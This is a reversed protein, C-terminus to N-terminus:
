FSHSSLLNKLRFLAFIKLEGLASPDAQARPLREALMAQIETKYNLIIMTLSWQTHSFIKTQSRARELMDTCHAQM